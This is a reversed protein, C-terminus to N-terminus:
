MEMTIIYEKMGISDYFKRAKSNNHLTEVKFRTAKKMNAWIFFEKCLKTGIRKRRHEKSVFFNEIEAVLNRKRWNEKKLNCMLFGAPEEKIFAIFVESNRKKIREEFWDIAEKEDTWETRLTDDFDNKEEIFLERNLKKILDIDNMRAKRINLEM